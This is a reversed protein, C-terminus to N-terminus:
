YRNPLELQVYMDSVGDFGPTWVKIVIDDGQHLQLYNPDTGDVQFAFVPATNPEGVPMIVTGNASVEMTRQTVENQGMSEMGFRGPHDHNFAPLNAPIKFHVRLPTKGFGRTSPRIQGAVTPWIIELNIFGTEVPPPPPVPVPTPEPGPGPGGGTVGQSFVVADNVTLVIKDGM